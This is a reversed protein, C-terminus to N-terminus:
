LEVWQTEAWELDWENQLFRFYELSGMFLNIGQFDFQEIIFINYPTSCGEELLSSLLLQVIKRGNKKFSQM